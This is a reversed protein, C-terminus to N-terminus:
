GNKAPEVEIAEDAEGAKAVDGGTLFAMCKMALKNSLAARMRGVEEATFRTGDQRSVVSCITRVVSENNALRVKDADGKATQVPEYIAEADNKSIDHFLYTRSQGRIEIEVPVPEGGFEFSDIVKDNM